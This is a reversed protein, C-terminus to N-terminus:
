NINTALDKIFHCQNELCDFEKTYQILGDKLIKLNKDNKYISLIKEVNLSSENKFKIRIFSDTLKLFSLEFSLLEIKLKTVLFLNELNEPILGFRDILENKIDKM